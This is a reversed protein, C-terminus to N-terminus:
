NDKPFVRIWRPVIASTPDDWDGVVDLDIMDGYSIDAVQMRNGNIGNRVSISPSVRITRPANGFIMTAQIYIYNSEDNFTVSSVIGRFDVTNNRPLAVYIIAFVFLGWGLYAFVKKAM